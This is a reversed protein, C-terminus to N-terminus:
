YSKDDQAFRFIEFGHSEEAVAESHGYIIRAVQPLPLQQIRHPALLWATEADRTKSGSVLEPHCYWTM